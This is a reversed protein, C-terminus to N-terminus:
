GRKEKWGNLRYVEARAEERTAKESIKQGAAGKETYTVLYIAWHRGHPMYEYRKTGPKPYKM